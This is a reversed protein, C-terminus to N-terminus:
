KKTYLLVSKNQMMKRLNEKLDATRQQFIDMHFKEIEQLKKFSEEWFLKNKEIESIGEASKYWEGFENLFIERDTYLRELEELEEPFLPETNALIEIIEQTLSYVSDLLEAYQEYKQM